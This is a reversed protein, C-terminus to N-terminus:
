DAETWEDGLLEPTDYAKLTEFHAEADEVFLSATIGRVLRDAGESVAPIDGSLKGHSLLAPFNFCHIRSLMPCAGPVKERFEFAPGLDPSRALSEGRRDEEALGDQWLRIHPAIAALEPRQSFDVWFGTAFILFDVPYEGKPTTVIVRGDVERLSNIPSGTHFYANPHRSVRLTSNRPPPTQCREIYSQIDWKIGPPLDIFGHVLGPSSVGMGKNIRPIAPRRIFLDVRAAGEELATGANDMASAGGGIVAVNKGRLPAFDIVDASHAVFRADVSRAVPPLYNGGLGDRGNALVLRRALVSETQGGRDLHVEILGEPGQSLGTMRVLNEVPLGMVERYWILYDMWDGRDIRFLEEWAAQGRTAEYWARFTLAPLGFAPGTLTKPSRLTEMRAITRWPGELGKPAMDFVRHNRIGQKLLALSTVLGCMGGGIVAVDLVERNGVRRPPVWDKGFFNLHDLDDNLRAELAALTQGTM